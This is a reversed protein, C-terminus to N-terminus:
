PLNLNLTVNPLRWAGAQEVRIRAATPYTSNPAGITSTLGHVTSSVTGGTADKVLFSGTTWSTAADPEWAGDILYEVGIVFAFGAPVTGGLDALLEWSFLGAPIPFGNENPIYNTPPAATIRYNNQSFVSPM